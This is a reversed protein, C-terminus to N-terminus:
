LFFHQLAICICFTQFATEEFAATILTEYYNKKFYYPINPNHRASTIGPLQNLLSFYFHPKKKNYDPTHNRYQSYEFILCIPYIYFFYNVSSNGDISYKLLSLDGLSKKYRLSFLSGCDRYNDPRLSRQPRQPEKAGKAISLVFLGSL